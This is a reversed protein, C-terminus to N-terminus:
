VPNCDFNHQTHKHLCIHTHARVQTNLLTQTNVTDLNTCWISYIWDMSIKWQMHAITLDLNLALCWALTTGGMSLIIYGDMCHM